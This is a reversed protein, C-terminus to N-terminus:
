LTIGLAVRAIAYFALAGLVLRCLRHVATTWTPRQVGAELAHRDRMGWAHLLLGLVLTPLWLGSLLSAFLIGVAMGIVGAGVSSTLEALKVRSVRRPDLIAHTTTM